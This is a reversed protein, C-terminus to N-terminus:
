EEGAPLGLEKEFADIQRQTKLVTTKGAYVRAADRFKGRKEKSRGGHLIWRVFAFDMKEPCGEGLDPRVQGKYKRYRKLARHLAAFRNFSLLVIRDAEELRREYCLKFYNGDIVWDSHTDLFEGIIARESERDRSQWGPLHHVADLHLVDANYKKGLKRALTSKGAGSYGIVAIKM